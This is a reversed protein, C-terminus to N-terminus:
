LLDFKRLSVTYSVAPYSIGFVVKHFFPFTYGLRSFDAATGGVRPTSILSLFNHFLLFQRLIESRSQNLDTVFLKEYRLVSGM